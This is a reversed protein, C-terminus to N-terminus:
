NDVYTCETSVLLGFITMMMLMQMLSCFILVSNLAVVKKHAICKCAKNYMNKNKIVSIYILGFSVCTKM